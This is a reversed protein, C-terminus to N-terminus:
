ETVLLYGQGFPNPETKYNYLNKTDICYVSIRTRYEQAIILTKFLFYELNPLENEKIEIFM